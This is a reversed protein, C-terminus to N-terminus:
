DNEELIGLTITGNEFDIEIINLDLDDVEVKQGIYLRYLKERPIKKIQKM